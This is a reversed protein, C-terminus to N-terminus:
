KFIGTFKLFNTSEDTMTSKVHIFGGELYTFQIDFDVYLNITPDVIYTFKINDGVTLIIQKKLSEMILEKLVQILCVGPVVPSGPFHGNFITHEKNFEVTAKIHGIPAANPIYSLSRIKYFDDKLM